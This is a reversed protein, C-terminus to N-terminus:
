VVSAMWFDMDGYSVYKLNTRFHVYETIKASRKWKFSASFGNVPGQKETIFIHAM